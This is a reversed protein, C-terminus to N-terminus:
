GASLGKDRLAVAPALFGLHVPIFRPRLQSSLLLLQVHEAHPRHGASAREMPRVRVGALLRKQFRVLQSELMEATNESQQPEVIPLTSHLLNQAPMLPLLCLPENGEARVASELALEASWPAAVLLAAYFFFTPIEAPVM